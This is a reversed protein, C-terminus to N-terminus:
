TGFSFRGLRKGSKLGSRAVPKGSPVALIEVGTQSWPRSVSLAWAMGVDNGADEDSGAFRLRFSSAGQQQNARQNQGGHPTATVSTAGSSIALTDLVMNGATTGVVTVSAGASTGFATYPSGLPAAANVGSYSAAFLVYEVPVPWSAVVNAAGALPAALRYLATTVESAFQDNGVQVLGVGGFTPASILGIQSGAPDLWAVGVVLLRNSGQPNHSLTVSAAQNQAVTVANFAVAV